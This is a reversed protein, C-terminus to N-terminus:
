SKRFAALLNRDFTKLEKIKNIQCVALHLLDRATLGPHAGILDRALMVTELEIPIVRDVGKSALELAADLTQTRGVPLYVHMLEQLVEASTVLREGKKGAQMFFDRAEARLPHSRGVAYIFVNSDIYIVTRARKSLRGSHAEQTRGM